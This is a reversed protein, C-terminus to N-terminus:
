SPCGHQSQGRTQLVAIVAHRGCVGDRRHSFFEDPQSFSCIGAIEIQEAPVGSHQLQLKNATWLDLLAGGTTGTDLLKMDSSRARFAAAVDPGVAYNAPGISPGIGAKIDAPDCGFEETMRKIMNRCIGGLTGAWGAHAIGIAHRSPDYAIVPVCDAAMVVLCVGSEQTIAADTKEVADHDGWAGRGCMSGDIVAVEAGHVQSCVVWSQLPLGMARAVRTRNEIVCVPDDGVHFAVNLSSYPPRSM